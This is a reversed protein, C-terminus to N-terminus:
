LLIQMGDHAAPLALKDLHDLMDVGLHSLLIQKAGLQEQKEMIERYSLHGKGKEEYYNSDCIFLDADKALPLLEPTWESDGSFAIIRNECMIRLGHPKSAPSHKVPFSRVYLHDLQIEQHGEYSIFELPLKQMIDTTTGPYLLDLLKILLLKFGPPSVIQIKKERQHNILLDLLLYAIGPYHDGHFHTIFIVDIAAPSIGERKLAVLTTAGCDILFNCHPSSVHFSTNGRGGSGFADGCGLVTLTVARSM